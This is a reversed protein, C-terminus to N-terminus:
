PDLYPYGWWPLRGAVGLALCVTDWLSLKEKSFELHIQYDRDVLKKRYGEIAAVLMAYQRLNSKGIRNINELPSLSDALMLHSVLVYYTFYDNGDYKQYAADFKGSLCLQMRDGEGAVARHAYRDDIMPYDRELEVISRLSRAPPKKSRDHDINTITGRWYSETTMADYAITYREHFREALSRYGLAVSANAAFQAAQLGISGSALM